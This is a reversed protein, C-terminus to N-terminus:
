FPDQSVVWGFMLDFSHLQETLAIVPGYQALMACTFLVHGAGVDPM